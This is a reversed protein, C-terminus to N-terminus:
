TNEDMSTAVVEDLLRSYVDWADDFSIPLADHLSLTYIDAHRSNLRTSKRDGKARPVSARHDPTRTWRRRWSRTWYVHICTGHMTLPLSSSSSAKSAGSGNNAISASCELTAFIMWQPGASTGPERKPRSREDLLIGAASPGNHTLSSSPEGVFLVHGGNSPSARGHQRCM